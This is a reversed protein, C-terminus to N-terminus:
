CAIVGCWVSLWVGCGGQQITITSFSCSWVLPCTNVFVSLGLPYLLAGYTTHNLLISFKLQEKNIGVSELMSLMRVRVTFLPEGGRRRRHVVAKQGKALSKGPHGLSGYLSINLCTCYQNVSALLTIFFFLSYYKYVYHYLQWIALQTNSQPGTM